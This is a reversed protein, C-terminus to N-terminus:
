RPLFKEGRFVRVPAGRELQKHAMWQQQNRELKAQDGLQQLKHEILVKALKRNAHQSRQSEVRVSIGTAIHVCRVASDTTNVHQGGAGSARCTEFRLGSDPLERSAEFVSVDVFWNKRKHKPRLPSQGIWQVTGTWSELWRQANTSTTESTIKNADALVLVASKLAKSRSSKCAMKWSVSDELNLSLGSAKADALMVPILKAVALGCEEPGDGASIQILKM